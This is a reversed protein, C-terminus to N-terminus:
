RWHISRGLPALARSHRQPALARGRAAAPRGGGCCSGRRRGACRGVWRCVPPCVFLQLPLGEAPSLPRDSAFAQPVHPRAGVDCPSEHQDSVRQQSSSSSSRTHVPEGDAWTAYIDVIALLWPGQNPLVSSAADPYTSMDAASHGRWPQGPGPCAASCYTSASVRQAVVRPVGSRLHAIMPRIALILLMPLTVGPSATAICFAGSNTYM